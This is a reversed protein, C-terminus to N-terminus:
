GSKKCNSRPSPAHGRCPKMLFAQGPLFLLLAFQLRSARHPKPCAWM